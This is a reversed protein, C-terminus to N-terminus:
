YFDFTKFPFIYKIKRRNVDLKLVQYFYLTQIPFIIENKEKTDYSFLSAYLQSFPIYIMKKELTVYIISSTTPQYYYVIKWVIEYLYLQYHEIM